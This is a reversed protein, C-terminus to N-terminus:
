GASRLSEPDRLFDAYTVDSPLSPVAIPQLPEVARTAAPTAPRRKPYPRITVAPVGPARLYASGSPRSPEGLREAIARVLEEHTLHDLQQDPM